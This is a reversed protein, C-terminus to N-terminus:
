ALIALSFSIIKGALRQLTKQAVWPSNLLDRVLPLFRDKKDDPILFAQDFSSEQFWFIQGDGCSCAAVQSSWHFLWGSCSFLM